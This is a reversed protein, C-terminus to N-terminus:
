CSPIKITFVAGNGFESEVLLEGAHKKIIGYAISLGLGTGGGVEKTTFFPDFIRDLHEAAIGPGDDSIKCVVYQRDVYTEVIINGLDDRKQSKIAQAANVFINVLVQGIQGKDCLVSPVSNLRRDVNAAYKVENRVILLAEEIIQNLDNKSMEDELGTRAFNRLSRVIKAVRDVGDRSETVIPGLDELVREIKQKKEFEALQRKEQLLEQQSMNDQVMRQFFNEHALLVTKIKALYKELTELNSSVFGVPNNIEHAVGAAMEGLSALKEQQVLHEQMNKLNQTVEQLERYQETTKSIMNRLMLMNKRAKVAAQMRATFETINIPKNIYDNAGNEFCIRFSEKDAVGTFMIIQIDNYEDRSRIEKLVDIGSMKPMIIDLLIVDVDQKMLMDMVNESSQCLLIEDNEVHAKILDRAMVLNFKEDDVIMIKM